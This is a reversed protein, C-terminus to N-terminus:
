KEKEGLNLASISALAQQISGMKGTMYKKNRFPYNVKDLAEKAELLAAELQQERSRINWRKIAKGTDECNGSTAYCDFCKVLLGIGTYHVNVQFNKSGCFPCNKIDSM